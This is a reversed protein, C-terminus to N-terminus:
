VTRGTNHRACEALLVPYAPTHAHAALARAQYALYHAAATARVGAPVAAAIKERPGALVGRVTEAQHAAPTPALWAYKGFPSLRNGPGAPAPAAALVDHLDARDLLDRRPDLGGAFVAACKDAPAGTALALWRAPPLVVGDGALEAILAHRGADDPPATPAAAAKGALDARVAVCEAWTPAPPFPHATDALKRLAGAAAVTRPDLLYEPPVLGLREALEAGGVVRDAAAVKGTVFATRDAGRTDSVDSLDFFHCNRNDVALHFGDDFVRGLNDRCGGYKTCMEPTCYEARSRAFHGCATCYDGPVRCSQSVAVDIGSAMKHLTREAVLGGNRAAAEKTGNLATITEVRGLEPDFLAKRVVGYSKAPDNNKHNLYFRAYKEFTPHDRLLMAEGYADANRNSNHVATYVVFSNDEEVELNYKTENTVTDMAVKSTPILAYEGCLQMASGVSGNAVGPVPRLRTCRDLLKASYSRGISLAYIPFDKHGFCGNAHRNTGVTVGSPIGVSALLRQLDAALTPSATSARVTNLVRRPGTKVICGDGDLYGALFDLRWAESQAFVLAPVRKNATETGLLSACRGAFAKRGLTARMGKDSTLSPQVTAKIDLETEVRRLMDQDDVASLSLLVAKPDGRTSLEQRYERTICGEALYLGLAYAEAAPLDVSEIPEPRIPVILYDDPRLTDAAAFEAKEAVARSVAAAKSSGKRRLYAECRANKDLDAARVVWFPHNATATVPITMGRLTVTVRPGSYSSEYTHTVRRYRNKHTLVLDGVRVAEIPKCGAATQVPAGAFFCGYKETSGLALNHVYVEGPQPRHDRVWLALPHSARKVFAAFDHGRLGDAAVKVVDLPPADLAPWSQPPIVKIM